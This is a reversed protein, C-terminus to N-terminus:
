FKRPERIHIIVCLQASNIQENGRVRRQNHPSLKRIARDILHNRPKGDKTPFVLPRTTSVTTISVRGRSCRGGGEDRNNGFFRERRHNQLHAHGSKRRQKAAHRWVVAARM